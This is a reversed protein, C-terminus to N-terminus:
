HKTEFMDDASNMTYWYVPLLVVRKGSCKIWGLATQFPNSRAIVGGKICSADSMKPIFLLSNEIKLRDIAVYYVYYLLLICLILLM